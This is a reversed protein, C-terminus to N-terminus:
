TSRRLERLSLECSKPNVGLWVLATELLTFFLTFFIMAIGQNLASESTILRQTKENPPCVAEPCTTSSKPMEPKLSRKYTITSKLLVRM